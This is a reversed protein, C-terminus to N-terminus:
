KGVAKIVFFCNTTIEIAMEDDIGVIFKGRIDYDELIVIENGKVTEVKGNHKYQLILTSNKKNPALCLILSLALIISLGIIREKLKLKKLM